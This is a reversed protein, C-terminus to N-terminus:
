CTWRRRGCAGRGGPAGPVAPVAEPQGPGAGGGRRVAPLHQLRLGRLGMAKGNPATGIADLVAEVAAADAPAPRPKIEFTAGISATVGRDVVPSRSRPPEASAVLARRWYLEEKPGSLPHDLAGENSLIDVFGLELRDVTM